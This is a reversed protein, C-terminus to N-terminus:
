FKVTCEDKTGCTETESTLKLSAKGTNGLHLLFAALRTSQKKLVYM